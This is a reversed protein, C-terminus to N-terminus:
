RSLKIAWASGFWVFVFNARNELRVDTSFASLSHLGVAGGYGVAEFRLKDGEIVMLLYRAKQIYYLDVPLQNELVPQKKQGFVVQFNVTDSACHNEDTRVDCGVM